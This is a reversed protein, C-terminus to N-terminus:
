GFLSKIKKIKEGWKQSVINTRLTLINMYATEKFQFLYSKLFIKWFVNKYKILWISKLLCLILMKQFSLYCIYLLLSILMVLHSSSWKPGVLSRFWDQWHSKEWQIERYRRVQGRWSTLFQTELTMHLQGGKQTRHKNFDIKNILYL